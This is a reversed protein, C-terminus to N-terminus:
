IETTFWQLNCIDKSQGLVSDAELMYKMNTHTQLSASSTDMAGFRWHEPQIRINNRMNTATYYLKDAQYYRDTWLLAHLYM